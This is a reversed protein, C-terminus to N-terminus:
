KSGNAANEKQHEIKILMGTIIQNCNENFRNSKSLNLVVSDRPRMDLYQNILREENEEYQRVLSNLDNKLGVVLRDCQARGKMKAVNRYIKYALLVGSIVIAIILITSVADRDGLLGGAVIASVIGSGVSTVAFGSPIILAMSWNKKLGYRVWCIWMIIYTLPLISAAVVFRGGVEEFNIIVFYFLILALTVIINNRIHKKDSYVNGAIFEKIKPIAFNVRRCVDTGINLNMYENELQGRKEIYENQIKNNDSCLGCMKQYYEKEEGTATQLAMVYDPNNKFDVPYNSINRDDYGYQTLMRLWYAKSYAPNLKIIEDLEEIAKAQNGSDLLALANNFRIDAKDHEHKIIAQDLKSSDEEAESYGLANEVNEFLISMAESNHWDIAQLKTLEQPLEYPDMDFYVVLLRKKDGNKIMDQYRCWENRVWPSEFNDESSGILIMVKASKLAAYIHPEYEEGAYNNLTEEAFFVRFGKRELRNFIKQAEKSDVTPTDSSDHSKYSIFIDYPKEERVIDMIRRQIDDIRAAQDEYYAKLEADAKEIASIYDPDELISNEITRHCTPIATGDYDSVYEIGYRCLVIGWYAEAEEPNEMIIRTYIDKAEDFNSRMRLRNARNIHEINTAVPMSQIKRCSKCKGIGSSQEVLEGGCCKCEYIVAM